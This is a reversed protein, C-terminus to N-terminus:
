TRSPLAAAAHDYIWHRTRQFPTTPLEARPHGAFRGSWDAEAVAPDGLVGTAGAAVAALGERLGARDAAVVVAAHPFRTRGSWLTAATDPLSLLHHRDLFDLLARAHARLAQPTRGTVVFPLPRPEATPLRGPPAQELVVHVNTGSFGFSSVAARRPGDRHPWLAPRTLLHVTGPADTPADASAPVVGHRMALAAAIVGAIGSANQTNALQSKVSRLLVPRDARGAGYTAHVAQIEIADGMPTGTGHGEVLDIDAGTLGAAALADTIVRQHAPGSRGATGNHNAASGRVVAAIPDGDALADALRRLLLVGAGEALGMGDAAAAFSRCRGDPSLGLGAGLGSFTVPTPIVAVGGALAADCEGALLARAALHLAYLGSSCGTALTLAPGGLGLAQAVRGTATGMDNGQPLLEAVGPPLDLAGLDHIARLGYDAQLLGAFIGTRTGALARPDVGSREVAEWCLELLLRQQPDTALAAQPPMGFFEADFDAVGDLFAGGTPGTISGLDWNRDAPFAGVADVGDALLRWLDEPTRVGGPYRCAMGVIAVADADRAGTRAPAQPAPEAREGHLFDALRAATPHDYVLTVPMAQGTEAALRNRIEVAMLSDLGIETFPRRPDVQAPDLGVVAGVVATVLELLAARDRPRAATRAAPLDPRRAEPVGDLLPRPAASAFVPAFRSWDVAAVAVSTERHAVAAALAAFAPEPRMHPLGQRRLVEPDVEKPNHPDLVGWVGWAVATAPIGRARAAEAHADLYANAAAYAGHEASGWISAISSFLVLADLEDGVLDALHDLGGVKAALSDALRPLDTATLPALDILAAAHVVTGIETGAARLRTLMAAVDARDALDCAAFTVRVGAAGLEARLEAMGPAAAGRRSVLVLEAAGLGALWRAIHPGLTGSAGTVLVPRTPRWDPSPAAPLPARVLRRAHCGAARVATQDEAPDALLAVVRRLADDTLRDPLDILGGWRRPHELAIVRGLGWVMNQRPATPPAGGVGVAGRTLLHLPVARDADALAHLLDLTTALGVPVVPHDPHPQEDLAALSVVGALDPHEAILARHDGRSPVVRAGADAMARAVAEADGTEEQPLVLLWTGGLAAPPRDAVPQWDIRYRWDATDDAPAPADPELWHRTRQFAYTPLDVPATAPPLARALEVPAGAAHLAAFAATVEDLGGNGRTMAPIVVADAGLDEATERVGFALLPHPGIEVFAGAGDALLGRVATEFEVPERLNRWWYQADLGATDIRGGTVTSHFPIASSRPRLAALERLLVPRLPDVHRSHAAFEAAVPRHWVGDAACGAAVEAIADPDGALVMSTPGNAAALCVRDGFPAIRALLAARPLAVTLMRGGNGSDLVARGRLASIRAGDALSLAGAVCAAAVEGHSAGVVADPVVGWSEWVAALGMSVAWLACQVADPRDLDVAYLDTDTHPALADACERYRAAFVPSAALLEDAMGPWQSGQGAFLFVVPGTATAQGRVVGPRDDALADLGSLLAARDRGVVVGRHRLHARTTALAVAASALDPEDALRERLRAAQARLAAASAGSVALALPAGGPERPAPAPPREVGEVVVHANTGSIGFSSVGARRQASTWPESGALLAVKGAAWDVKTSPDDGHLTRPLVGHRAALVMKIVGAVGAGAQTHGINGKVSGLRLPAGARQGYTALLAHAEIPDGLATGTGHAEVVDIDEISLGADALAATIVRRQAPGNPATLGNSAGDSNVATGRILGLVEHGARRADSLRELLLLGGGEAMAMGDAADAFPKCRGDAALARQRSFEVLPLTSSMITAGGALAQACEGARLARVALHIAVLSSSCATDVTIAPGRLGLVYAIRGSAVSLVGGTGVLGEAQAPVAPLRSIYDVANAGIFVGTETDRAATPAIRAHEFAEWALELLLRQQPDMAAAERPTIGFFEADFAAAEALFGGARVYCHGTRDPDPDYLDLPWGRDLPLGTTAVGGAAVLEWLGDPGTIGGPFRCSMGVIAIPDDAM